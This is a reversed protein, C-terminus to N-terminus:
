TTQLLKQLEKKCANGFNPINMKVISDFGAFKAQSLNKIGQSRLCNSLRVSAGQFEDLNRLYNIRIYNSICRRITCRAQGQTIQFREGCLATSLGSFYLSVLEKNRELKGNQQKLCSVGKVFDTINEPVKKRSYIAYFLDNLEETAM